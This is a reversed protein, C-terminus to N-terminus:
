SNAEREAQVEEWIALIEANKRIQEARRAEYTNIRAQAPAKQWLTGSNVLELDQTHQDDIEALKQELLADLEERSLDGIIKRAGGIAADKVTNMPKTVIGLAGGVVDTISPVSDLWYYLAYAVLGVGAAVGLGAVGLMVNPINELFKDQQYANIADKLEKREYDGFTIRHEVVEKPAKRPM